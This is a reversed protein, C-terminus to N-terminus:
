GNTRPAMATALDSGSKLQFDSNTGQWKQRSIDFKGDWEGKDPCVPDSYSQDSCGALYTVGGPGCTLIDVSSSLWAASVGETTAPKM